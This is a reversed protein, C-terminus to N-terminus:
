LRSGALDVTGEGLPDDTVNEDVSRCELETAQRSCDDEAVGRVSLGLSERANALDLDVGSSTGCLCKLEEALLNDLKIGPHATDSTHHRRDDFLNLFM